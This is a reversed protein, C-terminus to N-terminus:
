LLEELSVCMTRQEMGFGPKAPIVWDGPKFDAVASGAALVEAVGENGGIAPLDPTISYVGEIQVVGVAATLGWLKGM